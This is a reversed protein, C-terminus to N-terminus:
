IALEHIEQGDGHIKEGEINLNYQVDSLYRFYRPPRALSIPRWTMMDAPTVLVHKMTYTATGKIDSDDIIFIVKRPRTVGTAGCIGLDSSEIYINANRVYRSLKEGKYLWLWKARQYGFKENLLGDWWVVTHNPLHLMGWYWSYFLNLNSCNGWQHDAYGEESNVSMEKGAVVVKGTVRCRPRLIYSMYQPTPPATARGIYVGDPPERVPQTLCEFVLDAGMDGGRLHMEYKPFRGRYRNDGMTIDLTDKSVTVESPFHYLLPVLTRKGEPDCVEFVLQANMENIIFMEACLSYGNDFIVGHYWWQYSEPQGPQSRFAQDKEGARYLEPDIAM